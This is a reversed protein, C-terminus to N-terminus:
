EIKKKEFVGKEKVYKFAFYDCYFLFPLAVIFGIGKLLSGVVLALSVYFSVALYTKFNKISALAATDLSKAIGEHRERQLILGHSLILFFYVGLIFLGLAMPWSQLREQPSELVGFASGLLIGTPMLVVATILFSIWDNQLHSLDKKWAGSSLRVNAIEQFILLGLSILFAGVFPVIQAFFTFVTAAVGLYLSEKWNQKFAFLAQKVPNM